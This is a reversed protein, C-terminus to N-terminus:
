TGDPPRTPLPIPCSGAVGDGDLQSLTEPDVDTLFTAHFRNVLCSLGVLFVAEMIQRPGYHAAVEDYMSQPVTIDRASVQAFRVLAAQADDFLGSPLPDDVLHALQDDSIGASRGLV